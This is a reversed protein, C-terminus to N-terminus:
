AGTCCRFFMFLGLCWVCFGCVLVCGGVRLVVGGSLLRLRLMVDFWAVFLGVPVVLLVFLCLIVGFWCCVCIWVFLDMFLWSLCWFCIMVVVWVVGFEFLEGVALCVVLWVWLWVTQLCCCYYDVVAVLM